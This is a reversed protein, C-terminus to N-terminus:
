AIEMEKDYVLHLAPTQCRGASLGYAINKWLVPSISYGVLLDLMSRALQAQVMPGNLRKNKDAVSAQIATETVEHFIARPTNEPSLKLLHCLHWAIAEGERDDDTGLWVETAGKAADKIEKVAKTKGKLIEFRPNWGSEIGVADLSEELGRVHGMSAIVKWGDGLYSRIKQCKAPSEVIFLRM